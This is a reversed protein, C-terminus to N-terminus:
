TSTTQAPKDASSLTYQDTWYATYCRWDSKAINILQVACEAAKLIHQQGNRHLLVTLRILLHKDSAETTCDPAFLLDAIQDTLSRPESFEDTSTKKTRRKPRRYREGALSRVRAKIESRRELRIEDLKQDLLAACEEDSKKQPIGVIHRVYHAIESFSVTTVPVDFVRYTITLAPEGESKFQLNLEESSQWCNGFSRGLEEDTAGFLFEREWRHWHCIPEFILQLMQERPLTTISPPPAPTTQSSRTLSTPKRAATQVSAATETESSQDAFLGLMSPKEPILENTHM